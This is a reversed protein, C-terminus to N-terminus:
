NIYTFQYNKGINGSEKFELWEKDCDGFFDGVCFVYDFTGKKVFLGEIHDVFSKICGNIGCCILRNKNCM